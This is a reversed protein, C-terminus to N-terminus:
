ACESGHLSPVPARLQRCAVADSIGNSTPFATTPAIPLRSIGLRQPTSRTTSYQWFTLVEFAENSLEGWLRGMFSELLAGLQPKGACNYNRKSM